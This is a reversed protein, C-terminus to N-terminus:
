SAEPAPERATGGGAEGPDSPAGAAGNPGTGTGNPGTGAARAAARWRARAGKVAV